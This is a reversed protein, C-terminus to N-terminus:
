TCEKARLGEAEVILPLPFLPLTQQDRPQSARAARGVGIFFRAASRRAEDRM